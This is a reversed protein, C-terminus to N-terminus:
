PLSKPRKAKSESVKTKTTPPKPPDKAPEKQGSAERSLRLEKLKALQDLAAKQGAAYEIRAKSGEEAAVEKKKFVSTRQWHAVWTRILPLRDTRAFPHALVMRECFAELRAKSGKEANSLREWEERIAAQAEDQTM